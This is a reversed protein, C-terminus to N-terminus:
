FDSKAGPDVIRADLQLTKLLEDLRSPNTLFLYGILTELSSAQRYIELKIRRPRKIAANRGQRLIDREDNTFHPDLRQLQEAQYEARVHDVVQNHYTQLRKPPFLHYGRVYLEYVADGVYALASPSLQRVAGVEM